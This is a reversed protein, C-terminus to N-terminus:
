RCRSRRLLNEDFLVPAHRQIRGISDTLRFSGEDRGWALYGLFAAALLALALLAVLGRTLNINMVITNEDQM